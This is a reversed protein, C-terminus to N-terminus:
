PPNAPASIRSSTSRPRFDAKRASAGPAEAIQAGKSDVWEGAPELSLRTGIRSLEESARDAKSQAGPSPSEDALALVTVYSRIAEALHNSDAADQAKTLYSSMEALSAQSGADASAPAAALTAVPLFLWLLM